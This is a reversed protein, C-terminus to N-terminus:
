FSHKLFFQEHLFGTGWLFNLQIVWFTSHSTILYLVCFAMGFSNTRPRWLRWWVLRWIPLIGFNNQNIKWLCWKTENVNNKPYCMPYQYSFAMEGRFVVFKMGCYKPGFQKSILLEAKDGHLRKNSFFKFKEDSSILRCSDDSSKKQGSQTRIQVCKADSVEFNLGSFFEFILIKFFQIKSRICVQIWIM